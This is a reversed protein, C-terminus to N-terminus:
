VFVKYEEPALKHKLLRGEVHDSGCSFPSLPVSFSASTWKQKAHPHLPGIPISLSFFPCFTVPFHLFSLGSWDKRFSGPLCASGHVGRLAVASMTIVQVSHM